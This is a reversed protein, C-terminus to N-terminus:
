AAGSVGVWWAWRVRQWLWLLYGGGMEMVGAVVFFLASRAPTNM